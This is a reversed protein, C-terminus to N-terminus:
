KPLKVDPLARVGGRNHFVVAIKLLHRKTSPHMRSHERRYVTKSSIDHGNFSEIIVNWVLSNLVLNLYEFTEIM